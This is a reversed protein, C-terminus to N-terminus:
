PRSEETVTHADGKIVLYKHTLRMYLTQIALFRDSYSSRTSFYMPSDPMEYYANVIKQAEEIIINKEDQTM